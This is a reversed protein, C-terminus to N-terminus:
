SSSVWRWVTDRGRLGTSEAHDNSRLWRAMNKATDPLRAGTQRTVTLIESTTFEPGIIARTFPMDAWLRRSIEAVASAVITDHDFPLGGAAADLPTWTASGALSEVACIHGISITAGRPDRNTGDFAGFQTVHRISGAPLELKTVVAREAAESLGEGTLLLVGPLAARGVFPEFQRECTAFSLVGADRRVAVVDVSVLPQKWETM